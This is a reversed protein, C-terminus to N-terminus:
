KKASERQSLEFEAIQANESLAEAIRPLHMLASGMSRLDAAALNDTYNENHTAWYAMSGMARIADMIGTLADGSNNRLSKLTDADMEHFNSVVIHDFIDAM